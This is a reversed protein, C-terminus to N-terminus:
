LQLAKPPDILNAYTQEFVTQQRATLVNRNRETAMAEAVWAELSARGKAVSYATYDIRIISSPVPVIIPEIEGQRKGVAEYALHRLYGSVGYRGIFGHRSAEAVLAAYTDDPLSVRLDKM